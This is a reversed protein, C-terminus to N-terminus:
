LSSRDGESLRAGDSPPVAHLRDLFLIATALTYTAHIHAAADRISQAARQVAPDDPAIGCELLTLGALATAGLHANAPAVDALESRHYLRDRELVEKKLFDVGKRIAAAPASLRLVSKCQPCQVKAPAPEPIQLPQKCQPCPCISM